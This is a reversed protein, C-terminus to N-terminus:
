SSVDALRRQIAEHVPDNLGYLRVAVEWKLREDSMTGLDSVVQRALMERTWQLLGMARSVRERGELAEMRSQYESEITSMNM